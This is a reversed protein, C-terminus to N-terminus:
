LVARVAQQEAGARVARSSKARKLWDVDGPRRQHRRFYLQGFNGRSDGTGSTDKWVGAPWVDADRRRYDKRLSQVIGPPCASSHAENVDDMGGVNSCNVSPKEVTADSAGGQDERSARIRGDIVEASEDAGNGRIGLRAAFDADAAASDKEMARKYQRVARDVDGARSLLKAHLVLATAPPDSKLLEEVIVMAASNKGNLYFANALAIQLTVNGPSNSLAIRYEAEAEEYRGLSMLADALARRLPSNTPSIRLAERLGHLTDDDFAM